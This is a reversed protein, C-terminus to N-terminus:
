GCDPGSMVLIRDSISLMEELETSSVVFAYGQDALKLILNCIEEKSGVDVGRIPNM